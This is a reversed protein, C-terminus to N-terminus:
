ENIYLYPNVEYFQDYFEFNKKSDNVKFEINSIQVNSCSEMIIRLYGPEPIYLLFEQSELNSVPVPQESIDNLM